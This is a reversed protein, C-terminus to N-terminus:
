TSTFTGGTPSATPTPDVVNQCFSSASYSVSITESTVDYVPESFLELSSEGNQLKTTMKNITYAKTGVVILDNLKLNTILELPLIAKFHVLRAKISYIRNIYNRYYKQFLSNNDGGYDTLQFENIESGFNLNNEPPVTLTGLSSYNSPYHFNTLTHRTLGAPFIAGLVTSTRVSDVFNITNTDGIYLPNIYLLLPAGVTPQLDIDLFSGTSLTTNIGTDKRQLREFMMHGFPTKVKFTKSEDAQVRYNVEGFQVNNQELYRQALISKPPMHEFDIDNFPIVSEVEHKSTDIYQTIDVQNGEAYYTDLTKVVVEGTLEEVFCVLNYQKFLGDLFKRVSIKPIQEVISVLGEQPALTSSLSTAVIQYNFDYTSGGYEYQLHRDVTIKSQFAIADESILRFVIPRREFATGGFTDYYYQAPDSLQFDAFGLEFVVSQTGQLRTRESIVNWNGADLIQLTYFAQATASTPTILTTFRINNNLYTVNAYNTFKVFFIGSSQGFNGYKSNPDTMETVDGALSYSSQNGIFTGALPMKGKARHLWMYLNTFVDSDFFEGTKFTIGYQNEIAKLIISLKLAPKLDEPVVGRQTNTQATIAINMGNNFDGYQNYIYAQSHALLPYVIAKNYTVSDVTFNKGSVLAERVYTATASHNFNDLWNLDDLRDEKFLDTLKTTNGLFTVKYISPQGNNMSVTNLKLRGERFSQHNVFIRANCYVNSNFGQVDSNYWFNFVSNNTKSAPLNFTRSYDTFVKDLSHIDKIVQTVSILEEEMLDVQVMELNNLDPSESSQPQIYLSVKQM